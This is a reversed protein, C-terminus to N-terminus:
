KCRHNVYNAECKEFHQYDQLKKWDGGWSWDYRDFLKYALTNHNIMGKHNKSRDAFAAGNIPLVIAGRIYPNVRTNIDIAFGYAHSSYRNNRGTIPRCNFGSTNNSEMAAEDNGQYYYMPHMREIPFHAQYLQEFISTVQQAIQQNVILHGKHPKSDFGWYIITLYRLQSLPIPCGQHWTIGIMEEQTSKPIHQMTKAPIAYAMTTAWLALLIIVTYYTRKHSM